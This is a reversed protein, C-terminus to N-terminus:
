NLLLLTLTAFPPTHHLAPAKPDCITRREHDTTDVRRFSDNCRLRFERQASGCFMIDSLDLRRLNEHKRTQCFRAWIDIVVAPIRVQPFSYFSLRLRQMNSCM